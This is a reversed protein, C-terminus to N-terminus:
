AFNIDKEKKSSVPSFVFGKLDEDTQGLIYDRIENVIESGKRSGEEVIILYGDCKRWLNLAVEKRSQANPLEFFSFSSLVLDYKTQFLTSYAM